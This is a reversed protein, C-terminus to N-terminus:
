RGAMAASFAADTRGSAALGGAGLLTLCEVILGLVLFTYYLWKIHPRYYLKRPTVEPSPLTEQFKQALNSM